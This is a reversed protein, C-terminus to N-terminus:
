HISFSAVRPDLIFHTTSRPQNSGNSWKTFKPITFKSRSGFEQDSWTGFQSFLNVLISDSPPTSELLLELFGHAMPDMWIRPLYCQSDNLVRLRVPPISSDIEPFISGNIGKMPFESFQFNPSCLFNNEFIRFHLSVIRSSLDLGNFWLSHWGNIQCMQIEHLHFNFSPLSNSELKTFRSTGIWSFFSGCRQIIFLKSNKSRFWM